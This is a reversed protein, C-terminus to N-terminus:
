PLPFINESILEREREKEKERKHCKKPKLRHNFEADKSQSQRTDQYFRRACSKLDFFVFICRGGRKYSWWFTGISTLNTVLSISKLVFSNFHWGAPWEALVGDCVFLCVRTQINEDFLFSEGEFYIGDLHPSQGCVCVYAWMDRGGKKSPPWNEGWIYGALSVITKWYM